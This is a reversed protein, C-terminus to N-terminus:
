VGPTPRRAPDRARVRSLRGCATRPERRQDDVGSPALVYFCVVADVSGNALPLRRASGWVRVDVDTNRRLGAISLDVGIALAGAPRRYMLRPGCGVDLIVDAGELERAVARAQGDYFVAYSGPDDAGNLMVPVKSDFFSPPAHEVLNVIGETVSAVFGCGVDGCRLRDGTATLKGHCHPCVLLRELMEDM